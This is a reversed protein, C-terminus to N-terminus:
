RSEGAWLDALRPSEPLERYATKHPYAYTYSQYPRPLSVSTDVSTGMATVTM